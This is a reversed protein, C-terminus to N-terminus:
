GQWAVYGRENLAKWCVALRERCVADISGVLRSQLRDERNPVAGLNSAADRRSIWTVEPGLAECWEVVFSGGLSVCIAM